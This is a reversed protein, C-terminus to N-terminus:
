WLKLPFSPLHSYIGRALDGIERTGEDVVRGATDGWRELTGRGVWGHGGEGTTYDTRGQGSDHQFSKVNQVSSPYHSDLGVLHGAWTDGLWRGVARGANEAPGAAPTNQMTVQDGKGDSVTTGDPTASLTGPTAVTGDTRGQPTVTGQIDGANFEFAGGPREGVGLPQGDPAEGSVKGGPQDIHFDSSGDERREVDAYGSGTVAPMGAAEGKQLNQADIRQVDGSRLRKLTEDGVKGDVVQNDKEKGHTWARRFGQSEQFKRVAAETKSGYKGDVPGDYLGRAKLAEQLSHVNGHDGKDHAGRQLIEHPKMSMEDVNKKFAGMDPKSPNAKQEDDEDHAASPSADNRDQPLAAPQESRTDAADPAGGDTPAATAIPSSDVTSSGSDIAGITMDDAM